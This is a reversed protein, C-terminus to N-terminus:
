GCTVCDQRHTITMCAVMVMNPNPNKWEWVEAQCFTPDQTVPYEVQRVKAAGGGMVHAPPQRLHRSCHPSSCRQALGAGDEPWRRPQQQSSLASYPLPRQQVWRRHQANACAQHRGNPSCNALYPVALRPLLTSRSLYTRPPPPPPPQPHPPHQRLTPCALTHQMACLLPQLGDVNRGGGRGQRCIKEHMLRPAYSASTAMSM